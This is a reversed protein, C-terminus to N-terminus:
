AGATRCARVGAGDCSILIIDTHQQLLKGLEPEMAKMTSHTGAFKMLKHTTM